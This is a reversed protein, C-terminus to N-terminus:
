LGENRVIRWMLLERGWVERNLKTTQSRGLVLTRDSGGIKMTM